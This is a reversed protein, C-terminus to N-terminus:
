PKRMIKKVLRILCHKLGKNKLTNYYKVIKNQEILINHNIENTNFQESQHENKYPNIMKYYEFCLKSIEMDNKNYFNDNFLYRLINKTGDIQKNISIYSSNKSAHVITLSKDYFHPKTHKFCELYFVIDEGCRIKENYKLKYKDIFKKRIMVTPTAISCNSIYDNKFSLEKESLFCIENNENLREYSSYCFDSNKKNMFILQEELKTTKFEDDSDLLAIFEGKSESIGINRAHSVGSNKEFSIIKINKNKYKSINLKNKSGDDVIIIEFLKHTQKLVSEIARHIELENNYYPIVVSVLTKSSDKNIKNELNKIKKNLFKLVGDFKTTEIFKLMEYYYMYISGELKIKDNDSVDEILNIWLENNEKLVNPSTNGTQNKHLRTTALIEPQHVFKYKKMMRSWLEYDQTCRLEEKFNGCDEFAKKPILLTIGNIAGRLLGYIPKQSLEFSDKVSKAFINSNEDMLDYDSYLITNDDYNELYKIQESIKNKYYRDDHSLWSFYDGSMKKLALNLATSVGGNEKEFYKIKNGYSKAIEKTLNNDNSGDNVVIIETNKYTQSLASDIAEKMFKSGNYVPIIISVKPNKKM